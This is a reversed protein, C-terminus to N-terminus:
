KMCALHPLILLILPNILFYALLIPLTIAPCTQGLAMPTRRSSRYLDTVMSGAANWNHRIVEDEINIVAPLISEGCRREALLQRQVVDTKRYVM